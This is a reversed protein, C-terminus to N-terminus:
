DNDHNVKRCMQTGDPNLRPTIAAGSLRAFIYQCGTVKDTIAWVDVGLGREHEVIAFESVPPPADEARISKGSCALLGVFLAGLFGAAVYEIKM